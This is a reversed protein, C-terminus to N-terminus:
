LLINPLLIEEQTQDGTSRKIKYAKGNQTVSVIHQLEGNIYHLAVDDDLAIGDKMKGQGIMELYQQKRKPESDIHVCNSGKIFGLAEPLADDDLAEEFWCLSGASIGSLIVGNQWAKYLIKDLNWQRWRTLLNQTNGGGVYILDQKMIFSEIDKPQSSLSLHTKECPFHSFADYFWAIDRESDGSATPIFCIHPKSKNSQELIYKEIPYTQSDRPKIAGGSIAIIQTKM